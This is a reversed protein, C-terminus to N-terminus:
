GKTLHEFAGDWGGPSTARYIRCREAMVLSPGDEPCLALCQEFLAAAEDWQRERYAKLAVAYRDLMERRSDPIPADLTAILEYIDLAQQRGKVRVRDIQRLLFAAAVQRATHEGIMIQTGYVRNLQELRSALNVSDGLVTYAFRYRSGVNGVLMPGTNIGTRARLHPRGLKAWEAGLADRQELM